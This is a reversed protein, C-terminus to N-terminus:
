RIELVFPAHGMHGEFRRVAPASLLLAKQGELWGLKEGLAICGNLQCRYGMAADGMMNAAHKRIGARPETDLLLYMMRKFRPSWTWVARFFGPPLCSVSPQNDRWSLEGSFLSLGRAWMRGFTGEDGRDFREIVADANLLQVAV